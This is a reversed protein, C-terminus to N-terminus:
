TADAAVDDVIIRLGPHGRLLSAPLQSTMPGDLLQRVVTRKDPGTALLWIEHAALIGTMGLTVGHTPPPDVGYGAATERTSPALEVMRTPSDATSGPENMGVHGNLGLGLVVLDLGGAAAIGADFAACAAGVDAADVDVAILRPRPPPLRDLVERGIVLDCRRPHGPPLGLYDDLVVVTTGDAAVGRERLVDPLADYVPRPTSGTPLCVVLGPDAAFRDALLGAVHDTWATESLVEIPPENTARTTM